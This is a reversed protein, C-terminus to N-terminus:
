YKIPKLKERLSRVWANQEDVASVEKKTAAQVPRLNERVRHINDILNSWANSMPKQPAIADRAVEWLSSGTRTAAIEEIRAMNAEARALADATQTASAVSQKAVSCAAEIVALDAQIEVRINRLEGNDCDIDIENLAATMNIMCEHQLSLRRRVQEDPMDYSIAGTTTHIFFENNDSDTCQCWGPAELDNHATGSLSALPNRTVLESEQYVSDSIRSSPQNNMMNMSFETGISVRTAENNLLEM